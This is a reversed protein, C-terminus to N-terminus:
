PTTNVLLRVQYPIETQNSRPLPDLGRIAFVFGSVTDATCCVTPNTSLVTSDNAGVVTVALAVEAFGEWVCVADSPCRSETPVNTFRVRVSSDSTSGRQGLSLTFEEGLSFLIDTPRTPDAVSGCTMTTLAVAVLLVLRNMM